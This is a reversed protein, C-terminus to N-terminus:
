IACINSEKKFLQILWFTFLPKANHNTSTDKLEKIIEPSKRSRKRIQLLQITQAISNKMVQVWGQLLKETPTGPLEAPLSDVQLAPSGTEIGPRSSGRSFPYAVWELTRPSRQHSLPRPSRPEVGPNPLDGPPPSPLGSWYEQRSFGMSQPAQLAVTRDVPDCFTLCSQLSLAHVCARM